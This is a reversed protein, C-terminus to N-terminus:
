MHLLLTICLTFQFNSKNAAPNNHRSFNGPSSCSDTNYSNLHHVPYGWDVPRCHVESKSYPGPYESPLDRCLRVIICNSAGFGSSNIAECVNNRLDTDFCECFVTLNEPTYELNNFDLRKIGHQAVILPALLKWAKKKTLHILRTNHDLIWYVIWGQWYRM